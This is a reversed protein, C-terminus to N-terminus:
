GLNADADVAGFTGLFHGLFADFSELSIHGFGRSFFAEKKVGKHFGMTAGIWVGLATRINFYIFNCFICESFPLFSVGNQCNKELIKENM